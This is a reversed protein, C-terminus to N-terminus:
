DFVHIPEVLIIEEKASERNYSITALLKGSIILEKITWKGKAYIEPIRDILNPLLFDYLEKYDKIDQESITIASSFQDFLQQIWIPLFEVNNTDYHNRNFCRILWLLFVQDQFNSSYVDDISMIGFSLMLSQKFAIDKKFIKKLDILNSKYYGFYEKEKSKIESIIKLLLSKQGDRYIVANKINGKVEGISTLSLNENSTKLINYKQEVARRLKNLGELKMRLTMNTESDNKVLFAFLSLLNKPILNSENCYYLLGDKYDDFNKTENANTSKKSDLVSFTYDDLHPLKIGFKQIAPLTELPLKIRLALSDAKNSEITFGYGLLLEENGKSGYNNFLEDGQHLLSSQNNTLKFYPCNDKGDPVILWSVYASPDHNLLDIIPILMSLNHDAKSDVLHYPFSRSTFNLYSWLYMPFGTWNKYNYNNDIWNILADKNGDKLNQYIQYFKSDEEFTDSRKEIPISNIAEYWEEVIQKFKENLSFGLNTGNLYKKELNNWTLPSGIEHLQPLHHIYQFWFSKNDLWREHCLYLKTIPNSYKKNNDNFFFEYAKKPTIAISIPVSINPISTDLKKECLVAAIGKEETYKFEIAPNIQSGNANAWEVLLNLDEGNTM